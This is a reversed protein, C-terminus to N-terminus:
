SPGFGAYRASGAAARRRRGASLEQHSVLPRDQRARRWANLELVAAWADGASVM